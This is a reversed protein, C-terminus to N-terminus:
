MKFTMKMKEALSSFYVTKLGTLFSEQYIPGDVGKKEFIAYFRDNIIGPM